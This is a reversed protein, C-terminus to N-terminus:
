KNVQERQQAKLQRNQLRAAEESEVAEVINTLYSLTAAHAEAALNSLREIESREFGTSKRLADLGRAAQEFGAQITMVREYVRQRQQGTWRM